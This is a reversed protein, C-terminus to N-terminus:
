RAELRIPRLVDGCRIRDVHAQMREIEGTTLMRAHVGSKEVYQSDAYKRKLIPVRRFRKM